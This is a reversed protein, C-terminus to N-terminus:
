AIFAPQSIKPRCPIYKDSGFECGLFGSVGLLPVSVGKGPLEFFM